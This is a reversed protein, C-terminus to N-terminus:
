SSSNKCHDMRRIIPTSFPSSLSILLFLSSPSPTTISCRLFSPSWSTCSRLSSCPLASSTRSLILFSFFLIYWYLCWLLPQHLPPLVPSSPVLPFLSCLHSPPSNLICPIYTGYILLTTSLLNNFYLDQVLRHFSSPWSLSVLLPHLLYFLSSSRLWLHHRDHRFLRGQLVLVLLFFVVWRVSENLLILLAAYIFYYPINM